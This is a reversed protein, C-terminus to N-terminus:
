KFFFFFRVKGKRLIQSVKPLSSPPKTWLHLSSDLSAGRAKELWEKKSLGSLGQRGWEEDRGVVRM